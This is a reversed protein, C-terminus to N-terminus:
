AGNPPQNLLPHKPKLLHFKGSWGKIKHKGKKIDGIAIIDKKPVFESESKYGYLFHVLVSDDYVATINTVIIEDGGNGYKWPFAIYDGEKLNDTNM